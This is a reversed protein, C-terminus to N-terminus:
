FPLDDATVEFGAYDDVTSFQNQQTQMPQPEQRPEQLPFHFNNVAVETVYVTKGDNDKYSSTEISGTIGIGSGKHFYQCINEATGKWALCRIFNTAPKNQEKLRKANPKDIAISFKLVSVGDRTKQLQLNDTIRGEGTWNNLM